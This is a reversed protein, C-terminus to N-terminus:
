TVVAREFPSDSRRTSMRWASRFAAIEVTETSPTLM